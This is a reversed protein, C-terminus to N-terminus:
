TLFYHGETHQVTESATRDEFQCHDAKTNWENYLLMHIPTQFFLSYNFSFVKPNHPWTNDILYFM